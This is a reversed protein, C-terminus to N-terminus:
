LSCKAGKVREQGQTPCIQCFDSKNGSRLSSMCHPFVRERVASNQYEHGKQIKRGVNLSYMGKELRELFSLIIQETLSCEEM